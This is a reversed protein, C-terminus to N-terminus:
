AHGLTGAHPLPGTAMTLHPLAIALAFAHTLIGPQLVWAGWAANGACVVVMRVFELAWPASLCMRMCYTMCLLGVMLCGVCLMVCAMGVVVCLMCFVVWARCVGGGLSTAHQAAFDAGVVVWCWFGFVWRVRM